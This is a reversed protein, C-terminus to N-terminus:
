YNWEKHWLNGTKSYSFTTSWKGGNNTYASMTGQVDIGWIYRRPNMYEDYYPFGNGGYVLDSQSTITQNPSLVVNWTCASYGCNRLSIAVNTTRTVPEGAHPWSSGKKYEFKNKLEWVAWSNYNWACCEFVIKYEHNGYVFQYQYRSDHWSSKTNDDKLAENTKAYTKTVEHVSVDEFSSKTSKNIKLEALLEENQNDIIYEYEKDLWFIKKGVQYECKTNTLASLIVPMETLETTKLEDVNGGAESVEMFEEWEKNLINNSYTRYSKFGMNTEWLDFEEKTMESITNLCNNFHEPNEFVLRDNDVVINDLPNVSEIYNDDANENLTIEKEECSWLTILAIMLITIKKM